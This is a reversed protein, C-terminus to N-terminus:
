KKADIVQRKIAGWSASLKGAPEVALTPDHWFVFQSRGDDTLRHVEQTDVNMVAVDVEVVDDARHWVIPAYVIHQNDPLWQVRNLAGAADLRILNNDLADGLFVEQKGRARMAGTVITRKGNPSWYISNVFFPFDMAKPKADPAADIWHLKGHELPKAISIALRKSNPFWNYGTIHDKLDPAIQFSNLGRANMVFLESKFPRRDLDAVTYVIRKGDPSWKGGSITHLQPVALLERLKRGDFNMVMLKYKFPEGLKHRTTFLIQQGDPSVMPGEMPIPPDLYLEKNEGNINMRWLTNEWFADGVQVYYIKLEAYGTQIISFMLPCLWSIYLYKRYTEIKCKM